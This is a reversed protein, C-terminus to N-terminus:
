KRSRRRSIIIVAAIVCLAAIMIAIIMGVPMGDGTNTGTGAGGGQASSGGGSPDAKKVQKNTFVIAEDDTADSTVILTGDKNDKVSVHVSHGATDYITEADRGGAPASERIVYDHEGPETYTIQGFDIAGAEGAGAAANAGTAILTEEGDNMELLEFRFEGEKLDRGTLVKDARFLTNIDVTKEATGYTNVFDFASEETIGEVYFRKESDSYKVTVNVERSDDSDNTVGPFTGSETITYRFTRVRMGNGDPEIGELDSAELVINGFDIQGAADNVAETKESGDLVPVPATDQAAGSTTEVGELRFTFSGAIDAPTLALGENENKLLKQGKIPITVRTRDYVNEFTLRDSSDDPYTVETKLTGDGNDSVTVLVNFSSREASVGAPMDDTIEYVSYQYVYSGDQKVALGGAADKKLQETTYSIAGLDVTGAEGDGAAANEAEAIVKKQAGNDAANVIRFTFEGAKMDRGTLIKEAAIDATGSAEYSNSFPITAIQRDGPEGSMVSTRSIRDGSAKDKVTTVATLVGEGDDEVQIDIRYTHGDYSYGSRGENKEAVEYSFTRGGDNQTFRVAVGDLVDITCSQGDAAAKSEFEKETTEREFGLKYAADEATTGGSENDLATVTFTFQGAEMDRGDLTKTIVIGARDSYVVSSSYTNYFDLNTISDRSVEANLTGKGDDTVYVPISHPEGDYVIGKVEDRGPITETIYFEYPEDASESTFGVSGFDLAVTQQGDADAYEATVVGFVARDGQIEYSGPKVANLLREDDAKAWLTFTFSDGEKWDRGRLTKTGELRISGSSSYSNTWVIAEAAEDDAKKLSSSVALTGDAPDKSESTLSLEYTTDDYTIGDKKNGDADAPIKEKLTYRYTEGARSFRVTGLDLDASNGEAPTVTVERVEEGDGDVPYPADHEPEITFTFSDGETFDRNEITKVGTIHYSGKESYKNVFKAQDTDQHSRNRYSVDAKLVGTRNGDDDRDTVTVTVTSVNSDYTIGNKVNDQADAPINEKVRFKYTGTRSFTVSAAGAPDTQQRGFTFDAAARSDAAGASAELSTLEKDSDTGNQVFYISDDALAERTADDAAELSFTFEGDNMSRGELTKGGKIVASAPEATYSNSFRLRYVGDEIEYLYDRTDPDDATIPKTCAEDEFYEMGTELDTQGNGTVTIRVFFENPDYKTGNVTYGNEAAAGEPMVETLKYVYAKGADATGFEITPFSVSGDVANGETVSNGRRNEPNGPLPAKDKDAGVAELRFSFQDQTMAGSGAENEFTKHVRLDMYGHHDNYTNTFAAKDQPQREAAPIEAGNDDLEDTIECSASLSGKEDDTVTVTVDYVAESYRVSSESGIIEKVTYLYTGAHTFTLGEFLGTGSVYGKSDTDSSDKTIQATATMRGESDAVSGEPMTANVDGSGTNRIATLRIDFHADAFERDNWANFKKEVPISVTAAEPSYTNNYAATSKQKSGDEAPQPVTGKVTKAAKYEEGDKSSSVIWCDAADETVEYGAGAPLDKITMTQGRKLTFSVEGNEDFTITQDGSDASGPGKVVYTFEGSVPTKTEAGDKQETEYLKVTFDFEENRFRKDSVDNTVAKSIELDGVTEDQMMVMTELVVMHSLEMDGLDTKAAISNESIHNENGCQKLTAYPWGTDTTFFGVHSLLEDTSGDENLVKYYGLDAKESVETYKIHLPEDHVTRVDDGWSGDAKPESESVNLNVTLNALTTDIENNTAFQEMSKLLTGSGGRAVYIGDGKEGADAFAGNKNVVVKILDDRVKYGSPASVEKLYYTGEDLKRFVATGYLNISGYRSILDSTTQEAVPQADDKLKVDGPLIRSMLTTQSKDYLAFKVGNVSHEQSNFSTAYEDFKRIYLDSSVDTVVLKFAYQYEFERAHINDSMIGTDLRTTNTLDADEVDGTTYYYSISYQAKDELAARLQDDSRGENDAVIVNSYTMIDGPLEGLTTEYAGMSNLELEYRNGSIADGIDSFPHLQWGDLVSGSVASWNSSENISTDMDNRKYVVAFISGSKLSGDSNMELQNGQRDYIYTPATIMIRANAHIGSQWMNETTIAGTKPDYQLWIDEAKSYGAPAETEELIYYPGKDKKYLEEFSITAGDPAKLKLSGNVDTTGTCLSEGKATYSIEGNNETRDAEYLSFTAGELPNEYQDVKMAENDPMLKLNFKLSMNSAYNGRELYFFKLTHYTGGKFTNGSWEASSEEGAAEFKSRITGDNAGNISVDGTTFNIKLSAANHIGGLDGVLVDDIFVWVDDDGSFEYTIDENRTTKGSAPHLFHTSMTLGFWHNVSNSDARIGTNAVLEGKDNETFVDSASNFPFFQGIRSSSASERVGAKDYLKMTNTKEDYSAFNKTCDYYYYGKDDVQMLGEVNSYAKKGDVETDDFLYALPSTYFMGAWFNQALVPYGSSDLTKQLMGSYPEESGTWGNFEDGSGNSFKLDHDKNIGGNSNNNSNGHDNSGRENVWYDFLSIVTGQPTKGQVTHDDVAAFVDATGTMFIMTFIAAACLVAATKGKWFSM